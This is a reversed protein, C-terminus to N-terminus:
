DGDEDPSAADGHARTSLGTLGRTSQRVFEALHSLESSTELEAIRELAQTVNLESRYLFKYARKLNTRTSPAVGCRQLLVVNTGFVKAPHGEALMFPPVDQTLRSM